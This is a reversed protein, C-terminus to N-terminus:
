AAAKSPVPAAVAQFGVRLSATLLKAMELVVTYRPPSKVVM